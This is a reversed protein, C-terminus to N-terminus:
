GLIKRTLLYAEKRHAVLVIYVEDSFRRYVIRYNGARARFLNKYGKLKKVNALNGMHLGRVKGAISLQAVKPLKKLQKEALPSFILKM